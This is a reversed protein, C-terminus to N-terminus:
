GVRIYVATGINMQSPHVADPQSFQIETTAELMSINSVAVDRDAKEKSVVQMLKREHDFKLYNVRSCIYNFRDHQDCHRDDTAELLNDDRLLTGDGTVLLYGHQMLMNLVLLHSITSLGNLVLVGIDEIKVQPVKPEAKKAKKRTAM